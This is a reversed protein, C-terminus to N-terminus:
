QRGSSGAGPSSSPTSATIWRAPAEMPPRNVGSRLACIRSLRIRGVRRRASSAALLRAPEAPPLSVGFAKTVADAMPM